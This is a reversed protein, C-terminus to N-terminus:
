WRPYVEWARARAAPPAKRDQLQAWACLATATCGRRHLSLQTQAPLALVSAQHLKRRRTLVTLSGQLACLATTAARTCRPRCSAQKTPSCSLKPAWEHSIWRSPPLTM